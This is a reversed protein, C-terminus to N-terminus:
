LLYVTFSVSINWLSVCYIFRIGSTTNAAAHAIVAAVHPLSAEGVTEGEAVDGAV